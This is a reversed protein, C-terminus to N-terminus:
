EEKFYDNGIELTLREIVQKNYLDKAHEFEKIEKNKITSRLIFCFIIISVIIIFLYLLIMCSNLKGNSKNYITYIWAVSNVFGVGTTIYKLINLYKFNSSILIGKKSFSLYDYLRKFHTYSITHNSVNSLEYFYLALDRKKSKTLITKYITSLEKSSQIILLKNLDKNSIIKLLNNITKNSVKDSFFSAMSIKKDFFEILLIFLIFLITIIQITEPLKEFYKILLETM